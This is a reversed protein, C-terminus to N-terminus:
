LSFPVLVVGLGAGRMVRVISGDLGMSFGVSGLM